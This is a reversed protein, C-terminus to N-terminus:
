SRMKDIIDFLEDQSVAGVSRGAEEGNKFMILTPISAVGYSMSIEPQEDVNVKGVKIIGDYKEAAAAVAPALMRCPPCWTAWFDILVPKDSNIVESDFNDRTITIEM